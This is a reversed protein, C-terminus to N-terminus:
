PALFDLSQHDELAIGLLNAADAASLSFWRELITRYVRRFDTTMPMSQNLIRDDPALSPYAGYLGSQAKGGAIFVSGAAGHDTGDNGNQIIKRSFESYIMVVVRDWVGQRKLEDTFAGIASDLDGLLGAHRGALPRGASDLIYQESHTDYGGQTLFYTSTPMGGGIYRAVDKLSGGISSSPFITENADAAATQLSAQIDGSGSLASKLTATVYELSGTAPIQRDILGSAIGKRLADDFGLASSLEEEANLYDFFQPNSITLAADNNASRFALSAASRVDIGIRADFEEAGECQHDFYRGLWGSGTSAAPDAGEWIDISRFHSLIPNSNGVGNIIALEDADWLGKFGQLAPHLGLGNELPLVDDAALALNPRDQYYYTSDLTDVPVVTNLADNGGAQHILVFIPGDPDLEDAGACLSPFLGAGTGGLFGLGGLGKLFGRRGIDCSESAKGRDFIPPKM